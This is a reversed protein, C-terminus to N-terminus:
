ILITLAQPSPDPKIIEVWAQLLLSIALFVIKSLGKSTALGKQPGSDLFDKDIGSQPSQIVSSVVEQSESNTSAESSEL